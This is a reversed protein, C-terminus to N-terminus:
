LIQLGKEKQKEQDRVFNLITELDNQMAQHQYFDVNQAMCVSNLRQLAELIKDM